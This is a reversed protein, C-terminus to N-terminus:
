LDELKTGEQLEPMEGPRLVEELRSVKHLACRLVPMEELGSVQLVAGRLVQM